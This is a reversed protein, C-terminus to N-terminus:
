VQNRVWASISLVQCYIWLSIAKVWDNIWKVLVDPLAEGHWVDTQARSIWLHVSLLHRHQHSPCINSCDIWSWTTFIWKNSHSHPMKEQIRTHFSLFSSYKHLDPLKSPFCTVSPCVFSSLIQPSQIQSPVAFSILYLYSSIPDRHQKPPIFSSRM